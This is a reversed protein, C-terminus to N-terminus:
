GSRPTVVAVIVGASNAELRVLGGRRGRLDLVVSEEPGIDFHPFPEGDEATVFACVYGRGAHLMVIADPPVQLREGDRLAVLRGACAGRLTMLNVDRVQDGVPDGEVRSEGAFRLADGFHPVDKWVGDVCVRMGAGSLCLISRDVGPFESFPARRPVDAISLRWTWPGGAQAADSCIETTTGQGNKWPVVRQSSKDL